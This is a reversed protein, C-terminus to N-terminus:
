LNFISELFSQISLKLNDKERDTIKGNDLNLFSVVFNGTWDGM